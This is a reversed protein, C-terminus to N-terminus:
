PNKTVATQPAPSRPANQGPHTQSASRRTSPRCRVSRATSPAARQGSRSYRRCMATVAITTPIQRELQARDPAPQNQGIQGVSTSPM